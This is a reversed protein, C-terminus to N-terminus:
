PQDSAYGYDTGNKYCVEIKRRDTALGDIIISFRDYVWQTHAPGDLRHRMDNMYWEESTKQGNNWKEDGWLTRAPGDRRHRMDNMYWEESTKQGDKNWTTYAPGDLRHIKDNKYWEESKQGNILEESWRTIAPRDLRHVMDYMYWEESTKHGDNKNWTTYAPGDLRHIKGYNYWQEFVKQGGCTVTHAPGDLRHNINNIKWIESTKGHSDSTVTISRSDKEWRHGADKIQIGTADYQGDSLHLVRSMLQADTFPKAHVGLQKRAKRVYPQYKDQVENWLRLDVQKIQHLDQPNAFSLIHEILEKPLVDFANPQEPEPEPRPEARPEAKPKIKAKIKAKPKSAIITKCKKHVGCFQSDQKSEYNCQKLNQKICQCRM